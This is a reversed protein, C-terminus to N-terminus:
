YSTRMCNYNKYYFDISKENVDGDVGGCWKEFECSVSLMMAECEYQLFTSSLIDMNLSLFYVACWLVVLDAHFM